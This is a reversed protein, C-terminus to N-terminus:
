GQLAKRIEEDTKGANRLSQVIDAVRPDNLVDVPEPPETELGTFQNSELQGIFNDIEQNVEQFLSEAKQNLLIPMSPNNLVNPDEQLLESAANPLLDASESLKEVFNLFANVAEPSQKASAIRNAIFKFKERSIVGPFIKTFPEMLQVLAADLVVQDSGKIAPFQESVAATFRNINNKAAQRAQSIATKTLFRTQEDKKNFIENILKQNGRFTIVDQQGRTSITRSTADELSKVSLGQLQEQTLDSNTSLFNILGSRKQEDLEQQQQQLTQKQQEKASAAVQPAIGAINQKTQQRLNPDLQSQLILNLLQNPDTEEQLQPFLEDLVQRERLQERGQQVQQGLSNILELTFQSGQDFSM